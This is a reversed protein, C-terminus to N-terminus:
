SSSTKTRRSPPAMTSKSVAPATSWRAVSSGSCCQADTPQHQHQPPTSTSTSVTKYKQQEKLPDPLHGDSSLVGRLLNSERCKFQQICAPKFEKTELPESWPAPAEPRSFRTPPAAFPISLFQNIPTTAEPLAITRGVVVGDDITATPDQAFATAALCSLAFVSFGRM